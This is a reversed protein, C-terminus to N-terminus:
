GGFVKRLNGKPTLIGAKVLFDRAAIKDTRLKTGFAKMDQSLKKRSPEVVFQGSACSRAASTTKSSKADKSM